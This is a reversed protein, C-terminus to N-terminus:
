FASQKRIVFVNRLSSNLVRVRRGLNTAYKFPKPGYGNDTLIFIYEYCKAFAESGHPNSVMLPTSDSTKQSVTGTGREAEMM